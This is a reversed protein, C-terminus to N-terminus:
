VAQARDRELKSQIECDLFKIFREGSAALDDWVTEGSMAVYETQWIEADVRSQLVDNLEGRYADNVLTCSFDAGVYHDSLEIFYYLGGFLRVIADVRRKDHRAALICPAYV